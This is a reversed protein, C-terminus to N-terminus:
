FPNLSYKKSSITLWVNQVESNFYTINNAKHIAESYIRLDHAPQNKVPADSSKYKKM